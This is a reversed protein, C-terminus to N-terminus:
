VSALSIPFARYGAGVKREEENGTTPISLGDKNAHEALSEEKQSGDEGDKHEKTRKEKGQVKEEEVELPRWM